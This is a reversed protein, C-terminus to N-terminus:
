TTLYDDIEKLIKEKKNFGGDNHYCTKINYISKIVESNNKFNLSSFKFIEKNKIPENVLNLIKKDLNKIIDNKLNELNYWQFQSEFNINSLMKENNHKIDFLLNKKLFKGFLGSLRIISLKNGSLQKLENEFIIRNKGYNHNNEFNPENKENLQLHTEYGYVDITSCLILKKYNISSITNVINLVNKLDDDGNINIKWKVASPAACIIFDIEKNKITELNKSNILYDFTHSQQLNEGILGSSGILCTTKFESIM